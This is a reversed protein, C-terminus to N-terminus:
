CYTVRVPGIRLERLGDGLHSALPFPLAPGETALRDAFRVSRSPPGRGSSGTRRSSSRASRLTTLRRVRVAPFAGVRGPRLGAPAPPTRRTASTSPVPTLALEVCSNGDNGGSYSSKFWNLESSM